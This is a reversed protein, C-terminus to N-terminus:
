TTLTESLAMAKVMDTETKTPDNRTDKVTVKSLLNSLSDMEESPIPVQKLTQTQHPEEIDVVVEVLVPLLNHEQGASSALVRQLQLVPEEM